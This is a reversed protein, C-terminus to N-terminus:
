QQGGRGARDGPRAEIMRDIRSGLSDLSGRVGAIAEMIHETAERLGSKTVYHEAVHLRHEALQSQAYSALATAAEAQKGADKARQIAECKAKDIRSEVYRWGAWIVGFVTLGFVVVAMLEPGTM